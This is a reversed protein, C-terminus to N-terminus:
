KKVRRISYLGNSKFFKTIIGDKCLKLSYQIDPDKIVDMRDHGIQNVFVEVANEENIAVAIGNDLVTFNINGYEADDSIRCDYKQYSADFKLVMRRYLNNQHVILMCIRNEHKAQVVRCGILEPVHLNICSSAGDSKPLPIMLYPKGLVNQYIVGSFIEGSLPMINWVSKVAVAIDGDARDMLSLEILNGKNRVFLANNVIMKETCEVPIAHINGSTERVASFRVFNNGISVLVPKAKRPTFVVETDAAVDYESVGIHLKQRTKTVEIGFIVAHYLIDSEFDKLHRIEFNDTSHIVRIGVIPTVAAGALMPPPIRKGNEFVEIMWNRYNQPICAFDRTTPPASLQPNFVSVHDKMRNLLVSDGMSKKTCDPHKGKYPHIGVFLQCAVIGFSYWDTLESFVTSHPDRISPM